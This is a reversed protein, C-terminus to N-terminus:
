KWSLLEAVTLPCAPVTLPLPRRSSSLNGLLMVAPNWAAQALASWTCVQMKGLEFCAPQRCGTRPLAGSDLAWGLRRVKHPWDQKLIDVLVLNLKSLFTRERRFLAEEAACGAPAAHLGNAGPAFEPDMPGFTCVRPGNAEAALGPDM